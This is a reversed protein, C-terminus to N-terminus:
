KVTAVYVEKWKANVAAGTKGDNEHIVFGNDRIWQKIEEPLKAWPLNLVHEVM